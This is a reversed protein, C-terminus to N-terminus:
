VREVHFDFEIAAVSETKMQSAQRKGADASKAKRASVLRWAGGSEELSNRFIRKADVSTSPIIGFRVYMHLTESSAASDAINRWVRGLSIAFASQGGHNLQPGASYEISDPGGLLWNRLWQDQVYTRMGYYPPSTIVITPANNVSRFVDVSQADGHLVHSIPCPSKQELGALREIKRRLVRLVDIRPPSLEREKWFRVAYDPKSAYTRPMQNSFYGANEIHKPLPGHLCGLVAARLIASADSESALSLLGERLACIDRLTERHYATQFFITDPIHVPEVESILKKALQIPGGIDCSALKAKAISVAVLSSDIGWAAIGLKRAAFLTTGRGCFPDLVISERKGHRKLTNYPYELPFM